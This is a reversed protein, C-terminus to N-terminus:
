SWGLAALWDTVIGILHAPTAAVATSSLDDPGVVLVRARFGSEHEPESWVRVVLVGERSFTPQSTVANTM